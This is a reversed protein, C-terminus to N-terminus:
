IPAAPIATPPWLLGLTGSGIKVLTGSGSVAGTLGLFNGQTDITDSGNLSVANNVLLSAAGSQLVTNAAM